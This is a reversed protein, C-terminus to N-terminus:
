YDIQDSCKDCGDADEEPAAQISGQFEERQPLLDSHEFPFGAGASFLSSRRKQVVKRRYQGLHDSTRAIAL